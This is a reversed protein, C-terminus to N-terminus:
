LSNAILEDEITEKIDYTGNTAAYLMDTKVHYTRIKDDHVELIQYGWAWKFDFINFDWTNGVKQGSYGYGGIDIIKKNGYAEGMQTVSNIHTHGRYMYVINRDHCILNRTSDTFHKDADLHHACLFVKKKGSKKLAERLFDEDLQSGPSGSADLGPVNAFTDAMIFFCNGIQITYQRDYGFVERWLKNPYSDHNGPIAFSPCPLRDMCNEKFRQCFNWPLNRFGYDDISLDGLILVADLKERSNERCIDNYIKEIKERQTKGFTNGAADSTKAQPYVKKLEASTQETTYHVDSVLLFRQKAM